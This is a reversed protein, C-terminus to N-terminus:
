LRVMRAGTIASIACLTIAFLSTSTMLAVNNNILLTALIGTTVAAIIIAYLKFFSKRTCRVERICLAFPTFPTFYVTKVNWLTNFHHQEDKNLSFFLRNKLHSGPTPM